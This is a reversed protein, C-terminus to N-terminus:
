VLTQPWSDRLLTYRATVHRPIHAGHSLLQRLGSIQPISDMDCASLLSKTGLGPDRGKVQTMCSSQTRGDGAVDSM